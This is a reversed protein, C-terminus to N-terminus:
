SIVSRIVDYGFVQWGDGENTLLLNGKIRESRELEGTTDFDLTFRATVGQAKGKAALIDLAVRRRTGIAQDIQDAIEANSLLDVDRAADQRAGRTFAAYAEDYSTRPFEGLYANDFFEDIVASVDAKTREKQKKGLTGIVRGLTTKTTVSRETSGASGSSDGPARGEPSSPDDDSCGGIFAASTVAVAGLVALTRLLRSRVRDHNQQKHEAM